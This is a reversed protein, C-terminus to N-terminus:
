PNVKPKCSAKMVKTQVIHNNKPYHSVVLATCCFCYSVPYIYRKETMAHNPIWARRVVIFRASCFPEASIWVVRPSQNKLSANLAAM